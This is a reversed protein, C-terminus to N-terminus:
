YILYDHHFRIKRKLPMDRILAVLAALVAVDERIALVGAQFGHRPLLHLVGEVVAKIKTLHEAACRVEIQRAAIRDQVRVKPPQKFQEVVVIDLKRDEAIREVEVVM